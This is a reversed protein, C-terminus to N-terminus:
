EKRCKGEGVKVEKCFYKRSFGISKINVPIFKECIVERGHFSTLLSMPRSYDYNKYLILKCQVYKCIMRYSYALELICSLDNYFM